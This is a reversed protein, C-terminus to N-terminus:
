AVFAAIVVAVILSFMQITIASLQWLFWRLQGADNRKDSILRGKVAANLLPRLPLPIAPRMEKLYRTMLPAFYKEILKTSGVQRISDFEQKKETFFDNMIRQNVDNLGSTVGVSFGLYKSILGALVSIALTWLLARTGSRGLAAHILPLQTIAVGISAGGAATAWTSFSDARRWLRAAERMYEHTIEEAHAQAFKILESETLETPTPNIEPVRDNM